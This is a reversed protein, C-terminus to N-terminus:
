RQAFIRTVRQTADIEKIKDKNKFITCITITSQNCTCALDAVSEGRERKEIIQHKMEMNIKVRKHSNEQSMK